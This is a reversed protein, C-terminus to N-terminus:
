RDLAKLLRLAAMAAGFGNDINVVTIGAACSSLMSLLASLGGFSAGYGISTPVAIVPKDLLGGLVSALAGDMGAIVITVPARRLKEVQDTLRQLGAVGVDYTKEVAYGAAVVILAAEEAVAIDSTGATVISVYLSTATSSETLQPPQPMLGFILARAAEDYRCPLDIPKQALLTLVQAACDKDARTALILKHSQALSGAIAAIQEPTKGPCFIVEAFGQRLARHVDVRAFQLDRYPLIALQESAAAATLRGAAVDSLIADIAAKDM